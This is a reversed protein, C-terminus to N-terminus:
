RSGCPRYEFPMVIQKGNEGPGAIEARLGTATRRYEVRQPFDHQPNEFRVWGTGAGALRFATPPAGQPQALYNTVGDKSQIRLYEFSATKGAKVTRSLGLMLDGAGPLWYEEILEGGAELCWHGAIWGFDPTAVPDAGRVSAGCAALAGLAILLKHTRM